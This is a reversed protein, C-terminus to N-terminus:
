RASVLHAKTFTAPHTIIIIALPFVVFRCLSFFTTARRWSINEDRESRAFRLKNKISFSELYWWRIKGKTVTRLWEICFDSSTTIDYKKSKWIVSQFRILARFLSHYADSARTSSFPRLHVTAYLFSPTVRGGESKKDIQFPDNMKGSSLFWKKSTSGAM